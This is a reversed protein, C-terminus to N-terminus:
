RTSPRVRIGWVGSTQQEPELRIMDAHTVGENFADPGCTMPEIAIAKRNPDTFIQTWTHHEDGWVGVTHNSGAATIEWGTPADTFATDLVTDGVLRPKRFDCAKSVPGLDTPLLCEDVRLEQAFPSTLQVQALDDFIFFAHAGYGFPVPTNGVNTAQWSCTLGDDVLEFKSRVELTGGWGLQPYIVAAINVQEDTREVLRWELAYALGHLASHRDPENIPLQQATGDFTYRGDRIRNPWPVLTTGVWPLPLQEDSFTHFVETGKWTLSRLTAGVEGIVASFEGRSLHYQTGTPLMRM